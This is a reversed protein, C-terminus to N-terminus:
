PHLKQLAKTINSENINTGYLTPYIFKENSSDVFFLAPFERSYYMEIPYSSKSEYTVIVGIYNHDITTIYKQNMLYDNIINNCLACKDKVLFVLLNKHEKQAQMLADDYKGVWHVHNKIGLVPSLSLLLVLMIAEIKSKKTSIM